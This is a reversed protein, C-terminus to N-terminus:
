SKGLIISRFRFGTRKAKAALEKELQWNMRVLDSKDNFHLSLLRNIRLFTGSHSRAIYLEQDQQGRGAEDGGYPQRRGIERMGRVLVEGAGKDRRSIQQGAQEITQAHQLRSQQAGKPQDIARHAPHLSARGRRRRVSQVQDVGGAPRASYSM